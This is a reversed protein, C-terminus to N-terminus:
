ITYRVLLSNLIIKSKPMLNAMQIVLPISPDPVIFSIRLNPIVLLINMHIPVGPGNRDGTFV